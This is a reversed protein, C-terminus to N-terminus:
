PPRAQDPSPRTRLALHRLGRAGRARPDRGRPVGRADGAPPRQAQQEANGQLNLRAIGAVTMDVALKIANDAWAVKQAGQMQEAFEAMRRRLEDPDGFLGGFPDESSMGTITVPDSRASAAASSTPSRASRPRWACGRRAASGSARRGPRDLLRAPLQGRRRRAGEIVVPAVLVNPGLMWEQAERHAGPAEPAALWLPRTPPLGTRRGSRWLRRILPLARQHLRRAGELPRAGRARLGVAHAHRQAVLQAGPLVADAGVVRVLAHVAGREASRHAPGRLRRHRHHLRLRRGVARNLMDPGLSRLGSGASWDATEDGPFNGMEYAASGPRGSYGSRTFFWPVGREPHRRAWADAIRRSARHFIVPYRNHMTKGTSGDAFRMGDQVQEGFDQMFGDAGADLLLELRARWWRLTARRKFDLLTAPRRRELRVRLAAGGPPHGRVGSSFTDQYDGPVQTSLADDSVYARHYVVSRVGLARLRRILERVYAMDLLAWGEFAYGSPRVGYRTMDALDGEIKAQYSARTEPAPQGPLAPVAAARVLM